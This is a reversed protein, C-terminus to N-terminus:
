HLLEAQQSRHPPSNTIVTGVAVMLEKLQHQMQDYAQRYQECRKEALSLAAKLSQIETDQVAIKEEFNMTIVM